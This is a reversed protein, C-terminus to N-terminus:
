TIAAYRSIGAPTRAAETESYIRQRKRSKATLIKENIIKTPSHLTFYNNVVFFAFAAV